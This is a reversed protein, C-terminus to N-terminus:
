YDYLPGCICFYFVPKPNTFLFSVNYYITINHIDVPSYAILLGMLQDYLIDHQYRELSYRM